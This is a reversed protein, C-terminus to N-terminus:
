AAGCARGGDLYLVLGILMGFFIITAAGIALPEAGYFQGYREDFDTAASAEDDETPDTSQAGDGSIDIDPTGGNLLDIGTFTFSAEVEYNTQPSGCSVTVFPLLFLLLAIGFGAPSLLRDIMSRQTM